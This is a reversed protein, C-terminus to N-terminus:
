RRARRPRSMGKIADVMAIGLADTIKSLSLLTINTEGREVSGIYTRHLGCEFALVEQSWGLEERIRRLYRGLAALKPDKAAM